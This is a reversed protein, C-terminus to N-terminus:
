QNRITDARAQLAQARAQLDAGTDPPTQPAAPLQEVPLLKPPPGSDPPPPPLDKWDGCGALTLLLPLVYRM